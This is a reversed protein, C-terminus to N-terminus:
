ILTTEECIRHSTPQCPYGGVSNCWARYAPIERMASQRSVRLGVEFSISVIKAPTAIQSRSTMNARLLLAGHRWM